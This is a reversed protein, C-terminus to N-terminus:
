VWLKRAMIKEEDGMVNLYISTTALSAHGLWKKILTIPVRSLLCHIAFSHRLGKPCAQPGTIKSCEMIRKIYRSATRRSFPWMKDENCLNLSLEKLENIYMPPLPIQRFVGTKRKKLSEVIVMSDAFDINEVKMNLVESIRAGSWYLMICFLRLELEQEQAIKYFRKREAQNLYKRQGNRDILSYNSSHYNM